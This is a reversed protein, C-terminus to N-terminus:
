HRAQEADRQEQLEALQRSEAAEDAQKVCMAKLWAGFSAHTDHERPQSILPVSDCDAATMCNHLPLAYEHCVGCLSSKLGHGGWRSLLDWSDASDRDPLASRTM